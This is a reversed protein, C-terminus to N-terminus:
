NSLATKAWFFYEERLSILCACHEFKLAEEMLPNLYLTYDIRQLLLLLLYVFEIGEETLFLSVSLSTHLSPCDIGTEVSMLPKIQSNTTKPTSDNTQERKENLHDNVAASIADNLDDSFVCIKM